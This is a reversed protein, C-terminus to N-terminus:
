GQKTYISANNMICIYHLGNTLSIWSSQLQYCEYKKASFDKNLGLLLVKTWPLILCKQLCDIHLDATSTPQMDNLQWKVLYPAKNTSNKCGVPLMWVKVRNYKNNYIFICCLLEIIVYFLCEFNLVTNSDIGITKAIIRQIIIIFTKSGSFCYIYTHPPFTSTWINCIESSNDSRKTM